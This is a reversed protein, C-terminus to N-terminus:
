EGAAGKGEGDAGARLRAAPDQGFYRKLEAYLEPHTRLLAAPKEFFAEAAVAFFEAENEAGYTDLVTRRGREADDQLELFDTSLVRAWPLYAARDLVPTGDAAGDEQDLQHAFEHIVLNRGDSPNAQGARVGDWSLVVAGDAWSEGLRDSHGEHVIDGERAEVPARYGKPYILISRLRPYVDDDVHLILLCAQAAITVRMEDTVEVGGCGEFSKEAVFVQVLDRLEEREDDSLAAYAPGNKRLVEEWEAPFPQEAIRARRRRKLFDFM